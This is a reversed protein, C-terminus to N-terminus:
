FEHHDSAVVTLLMNCNIYIQPKIGCAFSVIFNNFCLNALKSRGRTDRGQRSVRINQEAMIRIGNGGDVCGESRRGNKRKAQVRIQPTFLGSVRTNSLFLTGTHHSQIDQWCVSHLPRRHLDTHARLHPFCLSLGKMLLPGRYDAM